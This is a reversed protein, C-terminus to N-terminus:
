VKSVGVVYPYVGPPAVRKKSLSKFSALATLLLSRPNRPRLSSKPHRGSRGPVL